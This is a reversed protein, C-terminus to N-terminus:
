PCVCRRRLALRELRSQGSAARALAIRERPGTKGGLLGVWGALPRVLMLFALAVLALLVPGLHRPSQETVFDASLAARAACGRGERSDREVELPPDDGPVEIFRLFAREGPLYVAKVSNWRERLPEEVVLRWLISGGPDASDTVTATVEFTGAESPTGEIVGDDVPFLSLSESSDGDDFTLTTSIPTYDTNATASMKKTARRPGSAIAVTPMVSDSIVSVSQEDDATCQPFEGRM